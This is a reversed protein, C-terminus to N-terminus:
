AITWQRSTNENSKKWDKLEIGGSIVPQAESVAKFEIKAKSNGFQESNFIIPKQIFYFGDELWVTCKENPKTKISELVAQKARYVTAFPKEKSGTNDDSGTPSLYFESATSPVICIILIFLLTIQCLLFSSKM